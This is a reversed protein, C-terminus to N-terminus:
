VYRKFRLHILRNIIVALRKSTISAANFITPFYFFASPVFLGNSYFLENECSFRDLATKRNGGVTLMSPVLWKKLQQMFHCCATIKSEIQSVSELM